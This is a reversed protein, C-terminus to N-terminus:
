IILYNEPFEMRFNHIVKLPVHNYEEKEMRFPIASLEKGNALSELKWVRLLRFCNRSFMLYSQLHFLYSQLHTKSKNM